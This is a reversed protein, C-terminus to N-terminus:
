CGQHDAQLDRAGSARTPASDDANTYCLGLYYHARAHDPTLTIVAHLNATAEEFQGQDFRELAREFSQSALQEPAAASLAELAMRARGEDGLSVYANYRISLGSVNEPEVVLLREAVAAADSFSGTDMLIAALASLAVWGRRPLFRPRLGLVGAGVCFIIMVLSLVPVGISRGVNLVIPSVKPDEFKLLFNKWEITQDGATIYQLM